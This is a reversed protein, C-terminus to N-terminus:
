QLVLTQQTQFFLNYLRLFLIVLLFFFLFISKGIDVNGDFNM